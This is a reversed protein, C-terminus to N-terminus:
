RLYLQCVECNNASKASSKLLSLLGQIEEIFRIRLKLFERQFSLNGLGGTGAQLLDLASYMKSLSCHLQAAQSSVVQKSLQAEAQFLMTMASMSM